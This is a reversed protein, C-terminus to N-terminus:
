LITLSTIPNINKSYIVLIGFPVPFVRGGLRDSAEFLDVNKAGALRLRKFAALGSLGGGVVAINVNPNKLTKVIEGTEEDYEESSAKISSM